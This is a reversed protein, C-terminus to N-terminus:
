KAEEGPRITTSREDQIQERVDDIDRRREQERQFEQEQRSRRKRHEETTKRRRDPEAHARVDVFM